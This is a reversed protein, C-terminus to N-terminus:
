GLAYAKTGGAYGKLDMDEVQRSAFRESTAAYTAHDLLV